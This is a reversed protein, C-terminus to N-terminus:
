RYKGQVGCGGEADFLVPMAEQSRAWPRVLAGPRALSDAAAGLGSPSACPAAVAAAPRAGVNRKSDASASLKVLLAVLVSLSRSLQAAETACM